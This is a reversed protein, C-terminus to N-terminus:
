VHDRLPRLQPPRDARPETGVPLPPDQEDPLLRDLLGAAIEIGPQEQRHDVAAQHVHHQAPPAHRERRREGDELPDGGLEDRDDAGVDATGTSTASSYWGTSASITSM